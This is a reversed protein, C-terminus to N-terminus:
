SLKHVVFDKTGYKDFDELTGFHDRIKDIKEM